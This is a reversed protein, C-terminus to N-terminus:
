TQFVNQLEQRRSELAVIVVDFDVMIEGAASPRMVMFLSTSCEESSWIRYFLDWRQARMEQGFPGRWSALKSCGSATRSKKASIKM